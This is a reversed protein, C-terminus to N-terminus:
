KVCEIFAVTPHEILLDWYGKPFSSRGDPSVQPDGLRNASIMDQYTFADPTAPAAPVPAPPVQALAPAASMLAVAACAASLLSRHRM